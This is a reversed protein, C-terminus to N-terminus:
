TAGVARFFMKLAADLEQQTILGKRRASRLHNKTENLSGKAMRLFNAFDAPSFRGWGEAILAPASGASRRIQSTLQSDARLTGQGCLVYVLSELESSLKWADLDEFRTVSGVVPNSCPESRATGCRFTEGIALINATIAEDGDTEPPRVKLM